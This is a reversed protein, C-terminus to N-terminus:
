LKREHRAEAELLLHAGANPALPVIFVLRQLTCYRQASSSNGPWPYAVTPSIASRMSGANVRSPFKGSPIWKAVSSSTKTRKAVGEARRCHNPSCNRLRIVRAFDVPCRVRPKQPAAKDSAFLDGVIKIY